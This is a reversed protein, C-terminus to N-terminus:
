IEALYKLVKELSANADLFSFLHKFRLKGQRDLIFQAPLPAGLAQGTEYSRFVDCSPNSLLPMKMGLDQIVQQTQPKDTSTIMLVEAGKETFREYNENLEKIHPYCLPCYQKETFIRTFALLVPQQGQYESLRVIRNNTIDPLVFEPTKSGLQLRSTAPIPVFNRFFRGNILGRFDTSTLM